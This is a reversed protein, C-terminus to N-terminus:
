DLLPEINLFTAAVKASATPCSPPLRPVIGLCPAPLAATLTAVNEAFCSMNTDVTNAVWGALRLGRADIAEATLLAHNLCGLRMGVVLIVDLELTVPLFSMSETASLPVLFGGAGEVLVTDHSSRLTDYATRISALDVVRNEQAAAIHPAIPERFCYPNVLSTRLPKGYTALLAHVDENASVGDQEITGAAIPKMPAASIGRDRLAVLLGCTVFTKGIETDTGTVFFRKM